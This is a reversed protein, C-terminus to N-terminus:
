WGCLLYPVPPRLRAPHQHPGWSPAGAARRPPARGVRPARRRDHGSRDGWFQDGRFPHWQTGYRQPRGQYMLWRDYAAAALWRAPRHGAAAARRALEHARWVSRVSDADAHMARIEGDPGREVSLRPNAHQFLMAAHYSDEPVQLAGAAILEELRLRRARDRRQVDPDVPGARRDAQDQEFLARVEANM